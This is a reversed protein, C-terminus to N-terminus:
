NTYLQIRKLLVASKYTPRHFICTLENNSQFYVVQERCNQKHVFTNTEYFIKINNDYLFNNVHKHQHPENTYCNHNIMPSDDHCNLTSLVLLSVHFSLTFFIYEKVKFSLSSFRIM